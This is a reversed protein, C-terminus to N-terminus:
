EESSEFISSKFIYFPRVGYGFNYDDNLILGSPSVCLIWRPNDHPQASEPTALWCWEDVKYKDFIEVNARYFDLTPLSVLSEMVGYPKLGDLTTLDTKITCLNEAGIAAIIQPLCEAEMKRLVDSQRLDNNNGFRSTFAIERAMVPTGGGVDPFKIFETGALMFTEGDKVGCIHDNPKTGTQEMSRLVEARASESLKELNVSVINM